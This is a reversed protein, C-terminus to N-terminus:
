ERHHRPAKPAAADPESRLRRFSDVPTVWVIGDGARGSHACHHIIEVIEDVREDPAVIEIRVKPSFDTLAERVNRPVKEQEHYSCGEVRSVSMGPFQKVASFAEKIKVLRAPQVVAKIEKM